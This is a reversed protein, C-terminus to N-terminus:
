YLHHSSCTCMGASLLLNNPLCEEALFVAIMEVKFCTHKPPFTWFTNLQCLAIIRFNHTKKLCRCSVSKYCVLDISREKGSAEQVNFYSDCSFIDSIHFCCPQNQQINSIPICVWNELKYLFIKLLVISLNVLQWLM